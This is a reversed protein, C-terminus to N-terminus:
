RKGVGNLYFQIVLDANEDSLMSGMPGGLHVQAFISTQGFLPLALMPPAGPGVLGAAQAAEVISIVISFSPM